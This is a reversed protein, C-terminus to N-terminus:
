PKALGLAGIRYGIALAGAILVVLGTLTSWLQGTKLQGLVQAVSLKGVDLEVSAPLLAPSGESASTLRSKWDAVLGTFEPDSFTTQSLDVWKLYWDYGKEILGESRIGHEAVVLLPHGLTYAMAAEIQNWVTPLNVGALSAEQASGRKEVGAVVHTREFALIVTGSCERMCEAVSRLPQQNKIYNRGVTQPALGNARLHQEFDVVFSEQAATFTRGVSLFVNTAM